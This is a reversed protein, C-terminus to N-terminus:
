LGRVLGWSNLAEAADPYCTIMGMRVQFGGFPEICAM